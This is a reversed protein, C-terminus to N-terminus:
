SHLDLHFLIKDRRVTSISWGTFFQSNYFDPVFGVPNVALSIQM